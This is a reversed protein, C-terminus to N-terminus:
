SNAKGPKRLMKFASLTGDQSKYQDQLLDIPLFFFFSNDISATRKDLNVANEDVDWEWGRLLTKDFNITNYNHLRAFHIRNM